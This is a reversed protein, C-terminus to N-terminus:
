NECSSQQLEFPGGFTSSDFLWMQTVAAGKQKQSGEPVVVWLTREM